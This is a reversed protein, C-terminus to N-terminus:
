HSTQWVKIVRMSIRFCIGVNSEVNILRKSVSMKHNGILWADCLEVVSVKNGGREIQCYLNEKCFLCSDTIAMFSPAAFNVVVPQLNEHAEFQVLFPVYVRVCQQHYMFNILSILQSTVSPNTRKQVKLQWSKIIM